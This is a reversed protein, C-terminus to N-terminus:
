IEERKIFRQSYTNIDVFNYRCWWSCGWTDMLERIMPKIAKLVKADKRYEPYIYMANTNLITGYHRFDAGLDFVFFGCPNMESDFMTICISDECLASAQQEFEALSWTPDIPENHYMCHVSWIFGQRSEKYTIM